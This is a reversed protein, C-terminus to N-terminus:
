ATLLGVYKGSSNQNLCMFTLEGVILARQADGIVAMDSMTPARLISWKFFAPDIVAITDKPMQRELTMEIVGFDSEYYNVAANLRGDNTMIQRSGPSSFQSIARKQFGNCFVVKPNGGNAFIGQLLTNFRSETLTTQITAASGATLTAGSATLFYLMGNMKRAGAGADGGATATGIIGAADIDRAIEKMRLETQFAVEDARGAYQVKKATNSVEVTKAFIQTYNSLRSTPTSTAYSATFGEVQANDSNAAALTVTQWEHLTSSCGTKGFTSWAPTDYPTIIELLNTLDEKIGVRNYTSDVAPM